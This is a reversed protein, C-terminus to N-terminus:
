FRLGLSLGVFPNQIFGAQISVDIKSVKLFTFQLNGIPKNNIFDWGGSLILDKKFQIFPERKCELAKQLLFGEGSSSNLICMIRTQGCHPKVNGAALIIQDTAGQLWSPLVEKITEKPIEKVYEVKIPVKKIKVIEKPVEVYVYETIPKSPPLPKSQFHLWVLYVIVLLSVPIYIYYIKRM